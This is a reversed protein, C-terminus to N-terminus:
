FGSLVDFYLAFFLRFLWAYWKRDVFITVMLTVVVVAIQLM